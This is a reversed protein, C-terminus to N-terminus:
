RNRECGFDFEQDVPFGRCCHLIPRPAPHIRIWIPSPGFAVRVYLTSRNRCESSRDRRGDHSERARSTECGCSCHRPSSRRRACISFPRGCSYLAPRFTREIVQQPEIANVLTPGPSPECSTQVITMQPRNALDVVLACGPHANEPPPGNRKVSSSCM